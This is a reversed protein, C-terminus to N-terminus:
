ISYKGHGRANGPATTLAFHSSFWRTNHVRLSPEKTERTQCVGVRSEFVRRIAPRSIRPIQFCQRRFGPIIKNIQM